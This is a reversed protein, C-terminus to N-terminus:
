KGSNVMLRERRQFHPCKGYQWNSLYGVPPVIKSVFYKQNRSCWQSWARFENIISLNM